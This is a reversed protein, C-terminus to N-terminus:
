TFMRLTCDIALLTDNEVWSGLLSATMFLCGKHGSFHIANIDKNGRVRISLHAVEIIERKAISSVRGRSLAFGGLGSCRDVLANATDVVLELELSGLAQDLADLRFGTIEGEVKPCEIVDGLSSHCNLLALSVTNEPGVFDRLVM